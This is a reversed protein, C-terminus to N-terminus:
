YVCASLLGVRCYPLICEGAHLTVVSEVAKAVQESPIEEAESHFLEPTDMLPALVDLTLTSDKSSQLVLTCLVLCWSTIQIVIM